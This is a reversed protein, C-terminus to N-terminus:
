GDLGAICDLTKQYEATVAETMETLDIQPPGNRIEECLDSSVKALASLGLNLAVGKITHVNRFAEPWNEAALNRMLDPYDPGDPLKRLYKVMREEKLLRSMTGEYDGNLEEYFEKVTM